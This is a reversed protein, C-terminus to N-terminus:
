LTILTDPSPRLRIMRIIVAEASAQILFRFGNVYICVCVCLSINNGYNTEREGQRKKIVM